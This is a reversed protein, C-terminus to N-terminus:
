SAISLTVALHVAPNPAISGGSEAEQARVSKQRKLAARRKNGECAAATQRRAEVTGAAPRKSARTKKKKRVNRAKEKQPLTGVTALALPTTPVKQQIRDEAITTCFKAVRQKMRRRVNGLSGVDTPSGTEEHIVPRRHRWGSLDRAYNEAQVREIYEQPHSRLLSWSNLRFNSSPAKTRCTWLDSLSPVAAQVSASYPAQEDSSM